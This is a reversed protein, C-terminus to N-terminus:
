LVDNPQYDESGDLGRVWYVPRKNNLYDRLQGRYYERLATKDPIDNAQMFEDGGSWCGTSLEDFGFHFYDDHFYDDLDSVVGKWFDYTKENAADIM